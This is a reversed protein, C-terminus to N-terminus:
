LTVPDDPYQWGQSEKFGDAYEKDSTARQPKVSLSDKLAEQHKASLLDENSAQLIKRAEVVDERDKIVYIMKKIIESSRKRKKEFTSLGFATLQPPPPISLKGAKSALDHVELWESFRLMKLVFRKAEYTALEEAQARLQELTLVKLKKENEEKERKLEALRKMEKMQAKADEKDVIKPPPTLSFEYSSSSFLSTTYQDFPINNNIIPPRIGQPIILNLPQLSPVTFGPM